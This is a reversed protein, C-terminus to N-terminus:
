WHTFPDKEGVREKKAQNVYFALVGLMAWIISNAFGVLIVVALYSHIAGVRFAQLIYGPASVFIIALLIRWIEMTKDDTQWGLFTLWTM